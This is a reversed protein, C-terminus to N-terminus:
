LKICKIGFITTENPARAPAIIDSLYLPKRCNKEINQREFIKKNETKKIKGLYLRIRNGIWNNSQVTKM